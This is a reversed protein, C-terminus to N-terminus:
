IRRDSVAVGSKLRMVRSPKTAWADASTAGTPELFGRGGGQSL